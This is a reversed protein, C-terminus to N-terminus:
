SSTAIPKHRARDKGNRAPIKGSADPTPAQDAIRLRKLAENDLWGARWLQAFVGEALWQLFRDHVTSAAGLERPLQKWQCGSHAVFLIAELAQRDPMRPRGGKPKPRQAPLLPQIRQWNADPIHWPTDALPQETM